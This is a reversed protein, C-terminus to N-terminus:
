LFSSTYCCFWTLYFYDFAFYFRFFVLWCCCIFLIFVITSRRKAEEIEIELKTVSITWYCFFCVCLVRVEAFSCCSFFFCKSRIHSISSNISFFVTSIFISCLYQSDCMRMEREMSLCSGVLMLYLTSCSVCFLVFHAFSHFFVSLINFLIGCMNIPISLSLHMHHYSFLVLFIFGVLIAIASVCLVERLIRKLLYKKQEVSKWIRSSDEKIERSDSSGKKTRIRVVWHPVWEAIWNRRDKM